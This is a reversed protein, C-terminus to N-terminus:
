RLFGDVAGDGVDFGAVMGGGAAEGVLGARGRSEGAGGGGNIGELDAAEVVVGHDHFGGGVEIGVFFLSGPVGVAVEVGGGGLVHDASFGPFVPVAVHSGGEHGLGDGLAVDGVPFVHFALAKA